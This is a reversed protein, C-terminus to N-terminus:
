ISDILSELFSVRQHFFKATSNEEAISKLNILTNIDHSDLNRKSM